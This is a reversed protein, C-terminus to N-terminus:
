SADGWVQPDQDGAHSAPAAVDTVDDPGAAVIGTPKTMLEDQAVMSVSGPTRNASAARSFVSAKTATILWAAAAFERTL